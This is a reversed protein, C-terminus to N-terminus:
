LELLGAPPDYLITKREVDIEVIMGQVMPLLLDRGSENDTVLVAAGGTRLVERVRGLSQGAVTEVRCGALEWDYFHGEPLKVREAEPVALECGVLTRAAEASDYAAFKLIIRRGHFWQDEVALPERRGDPRVATLSELNEFREPFDTLLDAVVEGRIGRSKVVRAVAVLDDGSEAPAPNEGRKRMSGDRV